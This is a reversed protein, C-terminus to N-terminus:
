QRADPGVGDALVARFGAPTHIVLVSPALRALAVAAATARDTASPGSPVLHSHWTGLCFLSYGCSEAYASIATRAGHTGLVFGGSSRESDDPAPLVDTVYFARSPESIRGMLIGGTEVGPWQRVEDDMKGVARASLRVSWVDPGEISIIAVPPVAHDSWSLSLGDAGVTGTLVRGGAYPLSTDQMGAILEAMPAAMMSLRADSMIMTASGCGEGIARRGLEAGEAFMRRRLSERKRALEYTEAMLDLSNPNRGPGEVTIVGVEGGAYLVTEIVRPIEVGEPVSGIAERVALSATANVIAWGRRPLHKRAKLKDRTIPVIDAAVATATQGLGAIADALADAKDGMWSVQMGGKRPVLAHRAVNHPSLYGSDIVISPARGARALHLAIKSGLSGCGLQVWSVSPAATDSEDSLRRLLTPTVAQRHGMPRVPTGDGAPLLKPAGIDVVYPCLEIPSDSGILHFPRRVCLVVSLPASGDLRWKAVCTDLWNLASDLAPGSGCDAARTRLSAVDTVTEPRYRDAIIPKGSKDQGPYVVLALSRGIRWRNGPEPPISRFLSGINKPNFTVRDPRIECHLANGGTPGLLEAYDLVFAAYGGKRSVLARLAAADAIVFDVLDDRRVREWGQEPDILQDLAARELWQVLQNLIAAIGRRQLLETVDGDFLCPRPRTALGGPRVHALSRDFDERLYVTPARLPYTGPFWLTVTEVARVGNPSQGDALRVAVEIEWAGTETDRRVDAVGTVSPHAAVIRRTRAILGDQDPARTARQV